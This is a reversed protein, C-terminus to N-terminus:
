GLDVVSFCDFLYVIIEILYIEIYFFDCDNCLVDLMLTNGIDCRQKICDGKLANKSKTHSQFLFLNSLISQILLVSVRSSTM